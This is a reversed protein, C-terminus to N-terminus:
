RSHSLVVLVANTKTTEGRTLKVALERLQNQTERLQKHLKGGNAHMAYM